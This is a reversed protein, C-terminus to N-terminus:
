HSPTACWISSPLSNPFTLRTRRSNTITLSGHLPKGTTKCSRRQAMLRGWMSGYGASNVRTYGYQITSSRCPRLSSALIFARKWESLPSAEESFNMLSERMHEEHIVYNQFITLVNQDLYIRCYGLYPRKYGFFRARQQIVDAHGVGAGRPMYTVTLGEVTFGRDMAQGGVLIWGYSEYWNITPTEGIRANVEAICTHRFTRPLMRVIDAFTPLDNVTGSLDDYAARFEDILDVRDPDSDPLLLIDKWADVTSTIWERFEQHLDTGQSPHVLMSRCMNGPGRGAILGACVGVLYLKLAETLSEPPGDLPNEDSAIEGPPIVRTLGSTQSGFIDRGGVYGEGPEIVEVFRPSLEDIINILLPAQPTATYQLFTHPGVSHRLQSIRRYTTSQSNRSVLNNLSAQDAEDDIILIPTGTLDFRSLLAVLNELHGHYKMVTILITACEERPVSSDQWEELCQRISRRINEEDTPNTYARWRLSGELEGILLDDHLRKTSQNLLPISTGAIVIVLQFGNDRALAAVTTFSLTKGSQVYGVVLGPITLETEEPSVGRALITAAAGLVTDGAVGPLKRQILARSEPGIRPTWRIREPLPIDPHQDGHSLNTGAM